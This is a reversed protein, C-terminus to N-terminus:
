PPPVAPAHPGSLGGAMWPAAGREAQPVTLNCLVVLANVFGVSCGPKPGRGSMCQELHVRKEAATM